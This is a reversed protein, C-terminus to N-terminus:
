ASTHFTHGHGRRGWALSHERGTHGCVAATEAVHPRHTGVARAAQQRRIALMEATKQSCPYRRDNHKCTTRAKAKLLCRVATVSDNRTGPSNCSARHTGQEVAHRQPTAVPTRKHPHRTGPTQMPSHGSSNHRPSSIHLHGCGTDCHSQGTATCMQSHQQKRQQADRPRVIKGTVEGYRLKAKLCAGGGVETWIRGSLSGLQAESGGMHGVAICLWRPLGLRTDPDVLPSGHLPTPLPWHTGRIGPGPACTRKPSQPWCLCWLGWPRLTDPGPTQRDSVGGKEGTGRGAEGQRPVAGGPARRDM